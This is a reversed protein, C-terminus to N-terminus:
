AESVSKAAGMRYVQGGRACAVKQLHIWISRVQAFAIRQFYDPLGRPLQLREDLGDSRLAHFLPGCRCLPGRLFDYAMEGIAFDYEREAQALRQRVIM